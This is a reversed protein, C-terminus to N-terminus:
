LGCLKLQRQRPRPPTSLAKQPRTGCIEAPLDPNKCSCVLAQMNYTQALHRFRAYGKRRLPAPVLKSRTSTGVTSWKAGQFCSQLLRFQLAPLEQHLQELIRPRLQLYSLSIRTVNRAALAKLLSAISEPDDTIFPLVPDIRAQAQLGRSHLEDLNQLRDQISAAGPEFIRRYEESTSVLGVTVSVQGPYESFLQLFAEPILGKTLISMSVGRRLLVLMSQYAVELIRPQDQFCDTATNWSVQQVSSRRRPNDLEQALKRPLNSYLLVLGQDPAGPYGRAYCYVCGFSCGQTVNLSFTQQLCGFQVKKLVRSKRQIEQVQVSRNLM